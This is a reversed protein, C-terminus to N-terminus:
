LANYPNITQAVTDGRGSVAHVVAAGNKRVAEPPLRQVATDSDWDTVRGQLTQAVSDWVPKELDQLLRRDPVSGAFTLRWISPYDDGFGILQPWYFGTLWMLVGDLRAFAQDRDRPIPRWWHVDGSDFRAWRWQDQHRDWDGIFVDM